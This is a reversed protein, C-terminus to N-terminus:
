HATSRNGHLRKRDAHVQPGLCSSGRKGLHSKCGSLIEMAEDLDEPTSIGTYEHLNDPRQRGSEDKPTTQM